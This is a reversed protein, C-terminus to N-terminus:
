RREESRDSGTFASAGDNAPLFIGFGASVTSNDPINTGVTSPSGSSTSMASYGGSSACSATIPCSWMILASPHGFPTSVYATLSGLHGNGNLAITANYTTFYLAGAPSSLGAKSVGAAGNNIALADMTGFTSNYNKGSPTLAGGTLNISQGVSRSPMFFIALVLVILAAKRSVPVSRICMEMKNIPRINISNLGDMTHRARM